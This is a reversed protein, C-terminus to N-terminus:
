YGHLEDLYDREDMARELADWEPTGYRPLDDPREDYDEGQPASLYGARYAIGSNWARSVDHASGGGHVWSSGFEAFSEDYDDAYDDAYDAYDGGGNDTEDGGGIYAIDAPEYDPYNMTKRESNQRQTGQPSALKAIEGGHGVLKGTEGDTYAFRPKAQLIGTM